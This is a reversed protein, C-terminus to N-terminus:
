CSEQCWEYKGSWPRLWCTHRRRISVRAHAVPAAASPRASGHMSVPHMLCSPQAPSAVSTCQAAMGAAVNQRKGVSEHCRHLLKGQLGGVVPMDVQTITVHEAFGHRCGRAAE